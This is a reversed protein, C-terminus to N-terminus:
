PRQLWRPPTTVSRMRCRTSMTTPAPTPTLSPRPRALFCRCQTLTLEVTSGSVAVATVTNANGGTTVIFDGAAATTASLAEDYTLVVKTGNTNTAASQFVPPLTDPTNNTVSRAALTIADNGLADQVANADNSTSPDTYAVTVAQGFTVASTLTLEVTSGSVTVATVANTNGGATVAFDGAAATTASLAENYTVIVKSGDSSTAASQFVPPLTDPVNNTVSGSSLSTADNGATDQVALNTNASDSAPSNYYVTAIQGFTIPTTLTLEVTSGNVAVGTVSNFIRNPLTGIFVAFAGTAATTAHLAENYTLIVKTGDTSTAASQFVPATIDAPAAVSNTVTTAVLTAADNGVADQV